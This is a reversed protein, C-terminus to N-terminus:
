SDVLLVSQSLQVLGVEAFGPDISALSYPCVRSANDDCTTELHDRDGTQQSNRPTNPTRRSKKKKNTKKRRVCEAQQM